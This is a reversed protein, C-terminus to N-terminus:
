LIVERINKTGENRRGYWVCVRAYQALDTVDAAPFFRITIEENEDAAEPLSDSFYKAISQPVSIQEPAKNPIYLSARQCDALANATSLDTLETLFDAIFCFLNNTDYVSSLFLNEDPEYSISGFRSDYIGLTDRADAVQRLHEKSASFVGCIYSDPDSFAFDILRSYFEKYSIDREQRMYIAAERTIGLCHFAQVVTAFFYSSIWDEKTMSSTSTILRSYETIGSDEKECHFQGFPLTTTKISYKEKYEESGLLSNPLLECPYVNISKHQGNEILTCIGDTFSEYTEEPLGLILESYTPINEKEYMKLLERFHPLDINKRGIAKLVREDVSQFSLTQSKGIGYRSLKSSIEGVFECRNKTFNVKLKSPYGTTQKLEIFMDTIEMDRDFIGFNADACYVYEIKHESLWELEKRVKELSFLKIKSKLAGWDCFACKNPCGRNTEIIASFEIGDELIPDFIGTLYPSPYDPTAPILREGNYVSGDPYKASINPIEYLSSGNKLNLLIDRFAEEGASHIFIDADPYERFAEEADPPIQHGGFVTICEPYRSKLEKSFAKNYESNWVSASFGVLFPESMKDVAKKIDARTYIFKGLTYESKIEDNDFAFAALCGIAYPIYTNKVSDGYIANAQVLYINKM